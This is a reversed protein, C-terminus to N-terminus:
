KGFRSADVKDHKKEKFGGFKWSFSIGFYGSSDINRMKSYQTGTNVVISKPINSNFINNYNLTLIGKDEAFTWKLGASVDYTNGLEFIGQIAPSTYYGSLTLKLNPKADSINITNNMSIRTFYKHNNFPSDYFNDSKEQLRMGQVQFRTDWRSGITVPVVAGLGTLLQFDFNEFRFSHILEDSSQYPLQTFYDPEYQVFAMFIYKQKFIYLLQGEYSRSPKLSPNGVIVSYSNLYTTQPNISWYSPYTKDSSVNLQLINSPSFMYSLSANPFFAWDDWLVSKKGNSTYDSRFYEGKLSVTASFKGFTHSLEGFLSGGYEKQKDDLRKDEDSIYGSGNNYLYDIKTDSLTYSGNIGYNFVWDEGFTYTHNIFGLWKNINQKSNNLMDTSPIDKQNNLFHQVEPNHYNTYDAGATIGAHGTYQLRANQLTSKNDVSTTSFNPVKNGEALYNFETSSTRKADSKGADIYYSVSLKDNNNFLYDIGLRATANNPKYKGRNIQNVEVIEDKLTHRAFMDEGGYGRGKKGSALFDISLKPTSYLLNTRIQGSAYHRQYYDAGAEGQLSEGDQTAQELIINILAGKVNYKAPANYMIETSKVRSAPITKLMAIVQELSMTTLQGNIIIHLGRAGLLEVKEDTGSIGPLEKIAEFANNVPKNQILQPTDYILTGGEVKVQPREAKVVIEDIKYDKEQLTINGIDQKEVAMEMAEYLLHQFLLRYSGDEVNFEFLGSDDTVFADVYVSDHTHLIVAVGDIGNSASDIVKGKIPVIASIVQCCTIICGLLYIKRKM